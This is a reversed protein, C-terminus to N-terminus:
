LEEPRIPLRRIRTGTAAFIANAVAATPLPNAMEGVGRPSNDSPVIYVEITPMEDMRLVPFNHFNDQEVRGDKITIEGKLASLGFVIGGEMQAEVIDPNIAIGCDVACVVRHVRYQGNPSVSVEAVQAVPTADWTAYCAIGRGWGDPLKTGWGAKEAALKLVAKLPSRDPLLSMRLEYPDKNGAAAIEDMFSENVFATNTNFVARWYGVPIPLSITTSRANKTLRYPPYGGTLVDALPQAAAYHRWTLPVGKADLGARLLHYSAPRYFDHQIDDERTWFLKIPAGIAKSIRVAEDVYDVRLRRGFASGVLPVHLRTASGPANSISRTTMLAQMRDQTPAWVDCSDPRVDAVCAMPEMTAHAMYPSEYIAEIQKVAGSEDKDDAALKQVEEVFQKRISDSDLGDAIGQKWSVQLAERGKIAAWTSEAVVAIGSPLQIVDRVGPLAKAKNVDFSDVGGGFVPCRAVVAYLMGPLKMDSAFTASGDVYHPNEVSGRRTGIISFKSPDKLKIKNQEPQPLTAALAALEGYGLQKDGSQNFVAGNQAYCTAPDVGWQQAAAAILMERATAGAWRLPLYSEQISTSGGTVQNGYISNALAQEVRVKSWDAELDEAVMMPLATQVGQGLESRSVLITVTGDTDIKLYANPTFPDALPTGDVMSGAAPPAGFPKQSEPLHFGIVLGAGTLASTKLFDRRSINSRTSM